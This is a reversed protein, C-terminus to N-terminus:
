MNSNHIHLDTIHEGAEHFFFRKCFSTLVPSCFWSFSLSLERHSQKLKMCIQRFSALNLGQVVWNWLGIRHANGKESSGM